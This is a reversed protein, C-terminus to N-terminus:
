APDWQDLAARCCQFATLHSGMHSTVMGDENAVYLANGDAVRPGQDEAASFVQHCM